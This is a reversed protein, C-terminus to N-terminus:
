NHPLDSICPMLNLTLDYILTLNPFHAVCGWGWGIKRPTGRAEVVRRPNSIQEQMLDTYIDEDTFQIDGITGIVNRQITILFGVVFISEGLKWCDPVNEHSDSCALLQLFFQLCASMLNKHAIQAFAM